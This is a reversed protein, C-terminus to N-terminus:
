KQYQPRPSSMSFTPPMQTEGISTSFVRIPWGATSSVATTPCASVSSSILGFAKTTSFSPCRPEGASSASSLAKTFSM